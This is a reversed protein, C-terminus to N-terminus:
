PAVPVCSSRAPDHYFHSAMCGQQGAHDSPVECIETASPDRRFEVTHSWHGYVNVAYTSCYNCGSHDTEWLGTTIETAVDSAGGEVSLLFNVYGPRADIPSRIGEGWETFLEALGDAGTTMSKAQGHEQWSMATEDPPVPYVIDDTWRMSVVAGEMPNGSEDLVRAHLLNGWTPQEGCTWQHNSTVKWVGGGRAVGPGPDTAMIKLSVEVSTGTRVTVCNEGVTLGGVSIYYIAASGGALTFDTSTYSGARNVLEASIEPGSAGDTNGSQLIVTVAQGALPAAPHTWYTPALTPSVPQPTCTFPEVSGAQGGQGGEAGGGGQSTTTSESSGGAGGSPTTTTESSGCAAGVVGIAALWSLSPRDRHRM